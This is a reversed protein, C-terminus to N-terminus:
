SAASSFSISAMKNARQPFSEVSHSNIGSSHEKIFIYFLLPCSAILFLTIFAKVNIRLFKAASSSSAILTINGLITTLFLLTEKINIPV